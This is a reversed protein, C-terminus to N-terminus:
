AVPVPPTPPRPPVVPEPPAAPAPPMAPDAPPPPPAAPASPPPAPPDAPLPPALAIRPAVGGIPHFEHFVNWHLMFSVSMLCIASVNTDLPMCATPYWYTLMSSQQISPRSELPFRRQFVVLNGDPM